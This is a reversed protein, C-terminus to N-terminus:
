HERAPLRQQREPPPENHQRRESEAVLEALPIKIEFSGAGHPMARTTLGRPTVDLTVHWWHNVPPALALRIKGVVQTWMHLTAYTDAWSALPLAPWRDREKNM